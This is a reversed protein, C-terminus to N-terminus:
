KAKFQYIKVANVYLFSNSRNYHLSLVIKKGSQTFNVPYEATDATLANNDLAQTPAESIILINKNKNKNDVHVSSRM